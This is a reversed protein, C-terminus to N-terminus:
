GFYKAWEKDFADGKLTLMQELTIEGKKTAAPLSKSAAVGKAAADIKAEATQTNGAFGRAKALAYVREAPNVGDNFAKNAFAVEDAIIMQTVEEGSYGLAEFERKRGNMVFQYADQFDPTTAAFQAAQEQYSRLFQQQQQAIASQQEQQAKWQKLEQQEQALKQQDYSMREFPDDPIEAEQQKKLIAQFTDEMKQVKSRYDELERQMEKRRMREEHLAGYPVTKEPEPKTEEVVPASEAEVVEVTEPVAEVSESWPDSVSEEVPAGTDESM